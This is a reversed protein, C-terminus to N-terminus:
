VTISSTKWEGARYHLTFTVSPKPSDFNVQIIGFNPYARYFHRKARTLWRSFVPIYGFSLWVSRQEFPSACFEVIPLRRGGPCKLQASVAHGSHLDGTLIHVGEIENEALFKLLREREAPFASWRDAAIDLWFPHLFSSSSVIFKVAYSDNVQRLWQLLVHWQGDGLMTRQRGGVRTTRTDLVFFAANGYYFTYALSAPDHPHFIFEGKADTRFPLLLDPAHMSQHEDYVKLAARVREVTLHLHQPPSGKLWRKLKLMRSYDASQRSSDRWRWDDDVEHDDLIMFWPLNPLLQKMATPSWAHEYVARYDDLTVAPHDLGNRNAYDAYIQDGLFMGFQLNESKIAQNLKDMTQGGNGDPPLYCSGIAFNFSRKTGPRPFTTFPHFEGGPPRDQTLSVAYHYKTEPTLGDLATIGAYGDQELLETSGILEADRGDAQIAIWVYMTAHADARVWINASNHSLGGVLPGLLISPDM